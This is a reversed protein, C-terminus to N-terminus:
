SINSIVTTMAVWNLWIGCTLYGNRYDILIYRTHESVRNACVLFPNELVVSLSFHYGIVNQCEGKTSIGNLFGM